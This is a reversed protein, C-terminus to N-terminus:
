APEQRQQKTQLIEKIHTIFDLLTSGVKWHIIKHDDNSRLRGRESDDKEEDSSSVLDIVEPQQTIIPSQQTVVPTSVVPSQQTDKKFVRAIQQFRKVTKKRLKQQQSLPISKDKVHITTISEIEDSSDTSSERERKNDNM